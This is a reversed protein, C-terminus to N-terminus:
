KLLDKYKKIEEAYKGIYKPSLFPKWYERTKKVDQRYVLYVLGTWFLVNTNSPALSVATKLYYLAQNYLAPQERRNGDEAMLCYVAGLGYLAELKEPQLKLIKEYKLIAVEYWKMYRYLDALKLLYYINGPNRHIVNELQGVAEEDQELEALLYSLMVRASDNDPETELYEKYNDVAKQLFGSKKYALALMIRARFNSPDIFVAEELFQLGKKEKGLHQYSIALNVLILANKGGYQISSKFNNKAKKWNNRFANYVGLNNYASVSTSDAKLASKFFSCASVTDGSKFAIVGKTNLLESNSSDIDIAVDLNYGAQAYWGLKEYTVAMNKLVPISNPFLAKADEFTKLSKILLGAKRYAIGLLCAYRINAPSIQSLRKFESIASGYKGLRFYSIGLNVSYEWCAPNIELARLFMSVSRDYLGQHLYLVGRLNLLSANDEGTKGISSIVRKTLGTQHNELYASALATRYKVEFPKLEIARYLYKIAKKKKKIKQMVSGLVYYAEAFEPDIEVARELAFVAVPLDSQKFGGFGAAFSSYAKLHKTLPIRLNKIDKQGVSCGTSAAIAKCIDACLAPISDGSGSLVKKALGGKGDLSRCLLKVKVRKGEIFYKGGFVYNTRWLKGWSKGQISMDTLCMKASDPIEQFAPYLAVSNWKEINRFCAEEIAQGVWDWKHIKSENKFSTIMVVTNGYAAYFCIM